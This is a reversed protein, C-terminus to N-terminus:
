GEKERSALSASLASRFLARFRTAALLHLILFISFIAVRSWWVAWSLCSFSSRADRAPFSLSCTYLSCCSSCHCTLLPHWTVIFRPPFIASSRVIGEVQGDLEGGECPGCTTTLGSEVVAGGKCAAWAEGFWWGSVLQHPHHYHDNQHHYYDDDNCFWSMNSLMLMTSKIMIVCKEGIQLIICHDWEELFKQQLVKFLLDKRHHDRFQSARDTWCRVFVFCSETEFNFKRPILYHAFIKVGTFWNDM